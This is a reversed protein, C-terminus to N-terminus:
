TDHSTDKDKQIRIDMNGKLETMCTVVHDIGDVHMKCSGCNGIGCYLGRPRNSKPSFSLIQIGREYLAYAIMDGERGVLPKGEFTFTIEKKKHTVPHNVDRIVMGREM